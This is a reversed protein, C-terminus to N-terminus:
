LINDIIRVFWYQRWSSLLAYHSWPLGAIMRVLREDKWKTTM